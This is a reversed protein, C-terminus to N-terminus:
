FNVAILVHMYDLIGGSFNYGFGMFGTGICGCAKFVQAKRLM